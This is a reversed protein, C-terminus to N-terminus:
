RRALVGVSPERDAALVVFLIGFLLLALALPVGLARLAVPDWLLPHVGSLTAQLWPTAKPALKELPEAVRTWVLSSAAISRTGDVVASVFAGALLLYGLLRFVFRVM